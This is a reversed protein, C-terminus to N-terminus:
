KWVQKEYSYHPMQLPMCWKKQFPLMSIGRSIVVSGPGGKHGLYGGWGWVSFWFLCRDTIGSISIKKRVHITILLSSGLKHSKNSHSLQLNLGSTVGLNYEECYEKVVCTIYASRLFRIHKKSHFYPTMYILHM